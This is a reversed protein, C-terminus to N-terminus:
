QVVLIALSLTCPTPLGHKKGQSLVHHLLNQLIQVKKQIQGLEYNDTLTPPTRVGLSKFQNIYKDPAIQKINETTNM